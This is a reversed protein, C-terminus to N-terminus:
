TNPKLLELLLKKSVGEDSAISNRFEQIVKSPNIKGWWGLVVENSQKQNIKIRCKNELVDSMATFSVELDEETM